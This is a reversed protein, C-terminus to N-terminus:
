TGAYKSDDSTAEPKQQPSPSKPMPGSIDPQKSPCAIWTFYATLPAFILPFLAVSKVGETMATAATLFLLLLSLVNCVPLAWPRHQFQSQLLLFM